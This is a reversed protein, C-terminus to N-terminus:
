RMYAGIESIELAFDGVVGPKIAIVGVEFIRGMDLTWRDKDRLKQGMFEPKSWKERPFTFTEMIDDRAQFEMKFDMARNRSCREDKVCLGFRMGKVASRCTIYFGDYASLDEEVRARVSAFGGNNELRVTGRFVGREFTSASLGGMVGDNLSAMRSRGTVLVKNTTTPSGESSRKQIPIVSSSERSNLIDDFAHRLAWANKDWVDEGGRRRSRDEVDRCVNELTQRVSSPLKANIELLNHATALYLEFCAKPNKENYLPAGASIAARLESHVFNLSSM